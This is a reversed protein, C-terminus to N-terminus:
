SREAADAARLYRAAVDDHYRAVARCEDILEPPELITFDADFARLWRAISVLSTSFLVLECSNEDGAEITGWEDHVMAAVTALPAHVRVRASARRYVAGLSRSLYGTAGGEPLERPVFRPGTPTKPEMRDVRFSRWDDRGLDWGILYWRLGSRVLRYPEVERRSETGDGRRYDFRLRETRHCATAIDTLTAGSVPNRTERPVAEMTLADLRHRLRSPMVQRLKALAGASAEAMDSVSGTTIENLGLAVALVEQDDLLLPPMEAGAGLRYGGGVGVTADVPYGLERLKDIDRRVTRTTIHLRDALESGSWDRRTQLLSLLALLRASTELM